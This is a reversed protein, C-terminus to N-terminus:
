PIHGNSNQLNKLFSKYILFIPTCVEVGFFANVASIDVVGGDEHDHNIMNAHMVGNRFLRGGDIDV